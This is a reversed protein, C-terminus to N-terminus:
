LLKQWFPMLANKFKYKNRFVIGLLYRARTIGVYLRNRTMDTLVTDRDKFLFKAMGDTPYLLIVDSETGKSDGMTMFEGIVLSHERRDYILNLPKYIDVFKDIDDEFVAFVGQLGSYQNRRAVCDPCTCSETPAMDSFLTTALACIPEICRHSKSLTTDDIEIFKHKKTWIQNQIFTDIRGSYKGGYNTTTYIHQRPDTALIVTGSYLKTIIKIISFDYGGFDQSEDFCIIDASEELRKAISSENGKSCLCAFESVLDKHIRWGETFFKGKVDDKKYRSFMRGDKTQITRSYDSDFILSIPITNLEELADTKYPLIFYKFVFEYWGMVKIRSPHYGFKNKIKKCINQQNITTFTVLIASANRFHEWIQNVLYTTKGSGAAAILCKKNVMLGILPTKSINHFKM